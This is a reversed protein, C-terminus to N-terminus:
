SRRTLEVSVELAGVPKGGGLVEPSAHPGLAEVDGDDLLDLARLVAVLAPGTARSGGDRVKLAIGYGPELAGACMLAEAGAKVIVRGGTREMVATDVRNRGAVLYPEAGMAAVARAAHPALPGLSEPRTLSAYLTAM